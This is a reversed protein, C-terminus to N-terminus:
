KKNDKQLCICSLNNWSYTTSIISLVYINVYTCSIGVCSSNRLYDYHLKM